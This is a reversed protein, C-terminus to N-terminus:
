KDEFIYGIFIVLLGINIHYISLPTLNYHRFYRMIVPGKTIMKFIVQVENLINLASCHARKDCCKLRGYPM